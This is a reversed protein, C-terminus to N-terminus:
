FRNRRLTREIDRVEEYEDYSLNSGAYRAAATLVQGPYKLLIELDPLAGARIAYDCKLRAAVGVWGFAIMPIAMALVEHGFRNSIDVLLALTTSTPSKPIVLDTYTDAAVLFWKDHLERALQWQQAKVPDFTKPLEPKGVLGYFAERDNKLDRYAQAKSKGTLKMYRQIDAANGRLHRNEARNIWTVNDLSYGRNPNPRHIEHTPHPRFGCVKLFGLFDRFCPEVPVPIKERQANNKKDRWCDYTEQYELPFRDKIRKRTRRDSLGQKECTSILALLAQHNRNHLRKTGPTSITEDTTESDSELGPSASAEASQDPSVSHSCNRLSHSEPVVTPNVFFENNNHLISPLDAGDEPTVPLLPIVNNTSHTM